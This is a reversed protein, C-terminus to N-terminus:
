LELLDRSFRTLVRPGEDDVWVDDEIRVGGRGPLYVGPEVTVVNGTVLVDKSRRALRPAEHVELGIGHGTSHGFREGWGRDDLARRAARDVARGPRGPAIVSLAAARAELVARHIERQWERAVGLTVTRTVDCCYGGATAGFDFLLLDGEVVARAGPEAHPLASRPGGAVIPDFPLPGSGAIRLRYHLEAALERESAGERVLGLTEELAQEAISVASRILELEERDKRVRMEEIAAPADEWTARGCREGLERRDRVSLYAAEFGLRRPVGGELLEGLAQFLGDRTIRISVGSPCEERAQEEYRFDTLLHVDGGRLAILLASSGSFGTLYRINPLHGVLLGDLSAARLREGLRLLRDPRPDTRPAETGDTAIRVRKPEGTM